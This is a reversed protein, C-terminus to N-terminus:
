VLRCLPRKEFKGEAKSESCPQDSRDGGKLAKGEAPVIDGGAMRKKENTCDM